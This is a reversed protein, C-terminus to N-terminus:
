AAGLGGKMREALAEVRSVVGERTSSLESQAQFLEDTISLAALIAAKDSELHGARRRIEQIREHVLKACSRTYEPEAASRITHEEGAITVTVSHRSEHAESM